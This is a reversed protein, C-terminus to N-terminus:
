GAEVGVWVRGWRPPPSGVPPGGAASHLVEAARFLRRRTSAIWPDGRLHRFDEEAKETVDCNGFAIKGGSSLGAACHAGARQCDFGGGSRGPAADGVALLAGIHACDNWPAREQGRRREPRAFRFRWTGSN